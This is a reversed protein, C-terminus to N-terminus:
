SKGAGQKSHSAVIWAFRQSDTDAKPDGARRSQSPLCKM